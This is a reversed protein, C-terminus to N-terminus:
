MEWQIMNLAPVKKRARMISKKSNSIEMKMFGNGSLANTIKPVNELPEVTHEFFALVLVFDLM